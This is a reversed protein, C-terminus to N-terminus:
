VANIKAVLFSRGCTIDRMCFMCTVAKVMCTTVVLTVINTLTVDLYVVADLINLVGAEVLDTWSNCMRMVHFFTHIPTFTNCM